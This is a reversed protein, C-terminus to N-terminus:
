GEYPTVPFGEPLTMDVAAVDSTFEKVEYEGEVRLLIGNDKGFCWTVPDATTPTAQPTASTDEAVEHCEAELGAITTDDLQKVTAGQQKVAELLKDTDYAALGSSLSDGDQRPYQLCSTTASDCVTTGDADQVIVSFKSPDDIYVIDSRGAGEKNVRTDRVDQSNGASDTVVYEYVIRYTLGSTDKIVDEASIQTGTPTAEATTTAEATGTTKEEPSATALTAADNDTAEATDDDNDGGCAAFTVASLAFLAAAAFLTRSRPM